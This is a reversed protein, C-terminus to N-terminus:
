YTPLYNFSKLTVNKEATKLTKFLCEMETLSLTTRLKIICYAIQLNKPLIKELELM